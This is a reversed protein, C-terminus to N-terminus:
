VEAPLGDLPHRHHHMKTALDWRVKRLDNQAAGGNQQLAAASVAAAAFAAGIVAAAAPSWPPTANALTAHDVPSVQPLPSIPQSDKGGNEKGKGTM